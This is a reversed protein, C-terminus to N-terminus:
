ERVGLINREMSESLDHSNDEIHSLYTIIIKQKPLCYCKQKWKGNISFGDRYKWFFYGYGGEKNEQQVSTALDAYEQSIIRKGCYVGGNSMLLGVKSLDHVCLKMGSAGYFYGDPSYQMEYNVIDLPKLIEEKIFEGLDCGLVETLVVGILFSNLNSYNFEQLEPKEIQCSLCYNLWNDGKPRFPFGKVSMTLLRQLTIKSFVNKQKESLKRIKSAPLYELVSKQVDVLGRDYAIGFAVSLISKTASYIEHINNCTDGYSHTLVSNEYVEVGFVAWENKEIDNIFKEFDM